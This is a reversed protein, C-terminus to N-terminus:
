DSRGKPRRPYYFIRALDDCAEDDDTIGLLDALKRRMAKWKAKAAERTAGLESLALARDLFLVVRYKRLPDHAIVYDFDVRQPKGLSERVAAPAHEQFYALIQAASAEEHEKLPTWGHDKAVRNIWKHAKDTPVSSTTAGDNFTPYIVARVGLECARRKIERPEQGTDVDYAIIRLDLVANNSRRVNPEHRGQLFGPGDKEHWEDDPKSLRQVFTDIPYDANNCGTAKVHPVEALQIRMGELEIDSRIDFQEGGSIIDLM